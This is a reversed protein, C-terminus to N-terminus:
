KERVMEIAHAKVPCVTACLSCGKCHHYDFGVVKQDIAVIASDPCYIWCMMCHVCREASFVPRMTRWSGTKYQSATGPETIHGGATIVDGDSLLRSPM